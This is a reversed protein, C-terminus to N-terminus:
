RAPPRAVRSMEERRFGNPFDHVYASAAARAETEHGERQLRLVRLYATDEADSAIATRATTAAAAAAPRATPRATDAPAWGSPPATSLEAPTVARNWTSGAGVDFASRGTLRAVVAGEEVAIRETHGAIVVVSFVTGTDEIEGDPVKVIVRRGGPRRSVRLHLSGDVLDIREVDNETTRTFRVGEGPEVDVTTVPAVDHPTSRRAVGVIGALAAAGVLLMYVGRRPRTRARRVHTGDVAALVRRRLGQVAAEDHEPVDSARLRTALEEVYRADAACSACELRHDLARERAQGVLRGDRVAEVEWARDCSTTM